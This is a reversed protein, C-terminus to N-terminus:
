VLPQKTGSTRIGPSHLSVFAREAIPLRITNSPWSAAAKPGGFWQLLTVILAFGIVSILKHVALQLSRLLRAHLVFAVLTVVLLVPWALFAVAVFIGLLCVIAIFLRVWRNM